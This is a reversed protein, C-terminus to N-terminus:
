VDIKPLEFQKSFLVETRYFSRRLFVHMRCVNHCSADVDPACWDYDGVGRIGHVIMIM